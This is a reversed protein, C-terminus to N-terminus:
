RGVVIRKNVSRNESSVRIIYLGDPLEGLNLEKNVAPDGNYTTTMLVEGILNHVQVMFKDENPFHIPNTM